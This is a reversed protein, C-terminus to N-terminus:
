ATRRRARKAVADYFAVASQENLRKLTEHRKGAKVNAERTGTSTSRDRLRMRERWPRENHIDFLKNKIDRRHALVKGKEEEAQQEASIHYRRVCVEVAARAMIENSIDRGCLIRREATQLTDKPLLARHGDLKGMEGLWWEQKRVWVMRGDEDPQLDAVLMIATVDNFGTKLRLMRVFDEPPTLDASFRQGRNKEYWAVTRAAHQLLLDM